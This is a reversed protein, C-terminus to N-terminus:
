RSHTRWPRRGACFLRFDYECIPPGSLVGSTQFALVRVTFNSLLFVAVVAVTIGMVEIGLQKIPAGGGGFLVGNPLTPFGSGIAFENQAFFAIM